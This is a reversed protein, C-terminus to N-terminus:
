KESQKLLGDYPAVGDSVSNTFKENKKTQNIKNIRLDQGIM